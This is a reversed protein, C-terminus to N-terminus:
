EGRNSEKMRENLENKSSCGEIHVKASKRNKKLRPHEQHTLNCFQVGWSKITESM